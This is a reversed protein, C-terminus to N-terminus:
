DADPHSALLSQVQQIEVDRHQLFYERSALDGAAAGILDHLTAYAKLSVMHQPDDKSMAALLFPVSSKNAVRRLAPAANLRAFPPGNDLVQNLMPVAGATRYESIASACSAKGTQKEFSAIIPIASVDQNVAMCRM